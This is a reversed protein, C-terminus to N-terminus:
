AESGAKVINSVKANPEVSFRSKHILGEFAAVLRIFTGFTIASNRPSPSAAEM